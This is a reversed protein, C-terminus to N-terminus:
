NWLSNTRKASHFPRLLFFLCRERRNINRRFYKTLISSVKRNRLIKKRHRGTHFFPGHHSLHATTPTLRLLFRRQNVRMNNRKRLLCLGYKLLVYRSCKPQKEKCNAFETWVDAEPLIESTYIFRQGLRSNSSWVFRVRLYLVKMYIWNHRRRNSPWNRSKTWIILCGQIEQSISFHWM